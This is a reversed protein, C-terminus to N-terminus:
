NEPTLAEGQQGPRFIAIPKFNPAEEGGVLVQGDALRVWVHADFGAAQKRVGYVIDAGIGRRGLMRQAAIAQDFCVSKWPLRRAAALIAWRIQGPSQSSMQRAPERTLHHAVERFPLGRLMLKALALRFAAEAVLPVDRRRRWLRQWLAPRKPPMAPKNWNSKASSAM